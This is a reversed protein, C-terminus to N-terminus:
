IKMVCRTPPCPLESRAFTCRLYVTARIHRSYLSSNDLKIESRFILQAETEASAMFVLKLILGLLWNQRGKAIGERKNDELIGSEEHVM